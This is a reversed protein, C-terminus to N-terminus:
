CKRRILYILSELLKKKAAQKSVVIPYNLKASFKEFFAALSDSQAVYVAVDKKESLNMEGSAIQPLLVM